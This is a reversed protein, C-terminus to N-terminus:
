VDDDWTDPVVEPRRVISPDPCLAAIADLATYADVGLENRGFQIIDEGADFELLQARIGRARRDYVAIQELQSWAFRRRRLGQVLELGETDGAVRVRLVGDRTALAAVFLGALVAVWREIRDTGFLAVLGLVAAGAGKAVVVWVPVGFRVRGPISPESRGASGRSSAATPDSDRSPEGMGPNRIQV